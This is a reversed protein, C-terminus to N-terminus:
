LLRFKKVPYPYIKSSIIKEAIKTSADSAYYPNRRKRALEQMKSSLLKQLGAYIDEESVGCHIVSEGCERGKQRLGIDLTPVGLSPVEVLGSSSNGFVGKSLSVASLYRLHGLSPIIKVRGAMEKEFKHLEAILPAPNIDNNPYTIIFKYEPSLRKLANQMNKQIQLPESNELTAAHLTGVLFKEGPNWNLSEALEKLTMFTTKLSNEVGLAGVQCVNEPQEGMQLIRAACLPTEPFHITAMKTIANRISDDFAGESVTGGAIHFIPIGSLLAASAIGLMECRDGLIIIGDLTRNKFYDAAGHAAMAMIEAPTGYAQFIADPQFGDAIIEQFTNGMEPMLHQHTVMILPESGFSRLKEAVSRLLGWDARTGTAIVLRKKM